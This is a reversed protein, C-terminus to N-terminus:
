IFHSPDGSIGHEDRFYGVVDRAMAGEHGKKRDVKVPDGNEDREYLYGSGADVTDNADIVLARTVGPCQEFIRSVQASGTHGRGDLQVTGGYVPEDEYPAEDMLAEALADEDYEDATEVTLNVWGSM